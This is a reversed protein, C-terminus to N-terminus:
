FYIIYIFSFVWLLVTIKMFNDNYIVETPSGTKNFIFTLQLYRLIGLLVFIVTTYIYECNFKNIIEPSICYMIYAVIIIASFITMMNGLFETNYDKLSLRTNKGYKLENYRKASLLFMALLFTMIIIWCSLSVNAIFAGFFLRVIYGLSVCVIDILAIKKIKYIYLLNLSLYILPIFLYDKLLVIGIAFSIFSIILATSKKFFGTALTREKKVPHNKDYEIDEIDNLIYVSSCIFSFGLLAIILKYVITFDSLNGDFFAPAFILLNKFYQKVRM